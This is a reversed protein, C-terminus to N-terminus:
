KVDLFSKVIISIWKAILRIGLVVGGFKLLMIAISIM